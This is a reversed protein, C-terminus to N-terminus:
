CSSCEYIEYYLRCHRCCKRLLYVEVRSIHYIDLLDRFSSITRCFTYGEYLNDPHWNLWSFRDDGRCVDECFFLNHVGDPEYCPNNIGIFAIGTKSKVEYVIKYFYVPVPLFVNNNEDSYLYIDMKHGKKNQLHDYPLWLKLHKRLDVELSNWNDENFGVRQPACNNVYNCTARKGFSYIFDTKVALHGKSLFETKSIYREIMSGVVAVAATQGRLSFLTKVPIM